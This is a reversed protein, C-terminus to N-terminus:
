RCYYWLIICHNLSLERQTERGMSKPCGFWDNISDCTTRQLVFIQLESRLSLFPYTTTGFFQTSKGLTNSGYRDRIWVRNVENIWWFFRGGTLSSIKTNDWSQFWLFLFVVRNSWGWSCFNLSYFEMKIAYNGVYVSRIHSGINLM